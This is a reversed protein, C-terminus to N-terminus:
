NDTLILRAFCHQCPLVERQENESLPSWFKFIKWRVRMMETEREVAVGNKFYQIESSSTAVIPTNKELLIDQVFHTKPAPLHVSEGELILLMDHWPILQASWRFDNLFIVEVKEVGVWAFTSTAPNVFTEFISKIPKLMFTKGCNAPGVILVNRYKGRGREFLVRM